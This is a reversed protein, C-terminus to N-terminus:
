KLIKNINKMNALKIWNNKYIIMNLLKYNCNIMNTM